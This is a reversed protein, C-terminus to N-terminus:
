GRVVRAQDFDRAVITNPFVKEAEEAMGAAVIKARYEEIELAQEDEEGLEKRIAKLQERLFYERQSKEIEEKAKEIRTKIRERDDTARGLLRKELEPVSPPM